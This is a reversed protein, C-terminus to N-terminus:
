IDIADKLGRNFGHAIKPKINTENESVEQSLNEKPQNSAKAQASQGLLWYVIFPKIVWDYIWFGHTFCLGVTEVKPLFYFVAYYLRKLPKFIFGVIATSFKFPQFWQWVMM